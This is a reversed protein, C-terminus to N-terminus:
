LQPRACWSWIYNWIEFLHAYLHVTFLSWIACPKTRGQGPVRVQTRRPVSVLSSALRNALILRPVIEVFFSYFLPFYRCMEWKTPIM